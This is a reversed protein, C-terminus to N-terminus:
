TQFNRGKPGKVWKVWGWGRAVIVSDETDMLESTKSQAYFHSQVSNRKRRIMEKVIIGELDMWTTVLTTSGENKHHFLIGDHIHTLTHICKKIREGM